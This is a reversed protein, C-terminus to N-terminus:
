LYRHLTYTKRNALRTIWNEETASYVYRGASFVTRRNMETILSITAKVFDERWDSRRAAWLVTHKDIPFSLEAGYRGVGEDRFYFVPNDSTLFVSNRDDILFGWSMTGVALISRATLIPYLSKEWVSQTDLRDPQGRQADQLQIIAKDIIETSEPHENKQRELSDRLQHFIPDTNKKDNLWREARKKGQPVRRLMTIIYISFVAKDDLTLTQRHKIKQLVSNAPGEIDNALWSEVEDSWYRNENAVQTVTTCFRRQSGKEYAWILPSDPMSAFGKLYYQPLYHKGM